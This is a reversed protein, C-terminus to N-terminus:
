AGRTHYQRFTIGGPMYATTHYKTSKIKIIFGLKSCTALFACTLKSFITEREKSMKKEKM